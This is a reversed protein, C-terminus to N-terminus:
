FLTLRYAGPSRGMRKKFSKCFHISDAFGLRAAVQKVSENGARFANAAAMVKRSLLYDHPTQGTVQAFLRRFHSYSLGIKRAEREMAFDLWPADSMREALALLEPAHPNKEVANGTAEAQLLCLLRELAVFINGHLRVDNLKAQADIECFIAEVLEPKRVRFFGAASLQMFGEEVLRKAMPGRLTVWRHEFGKNDMSGYQYSHAPHHWFVAPFNLEKVAGGDIGLYMRGASIFEVSVMDSFTQDVAATYFPVIASQVVEIDDFYKM